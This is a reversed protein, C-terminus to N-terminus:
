NGDVCLMDTASNNKKASCERYKHINLMPNNGSAWHQKPQKISRKRVELILDMGVAQRTGQVLVQNTGCQYM